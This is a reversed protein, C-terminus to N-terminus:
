GSHEVSFRTVSQPNERVFPATSSWRAGVGRPVASM